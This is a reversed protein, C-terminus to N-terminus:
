WAGRAAEMEGAMRAVLEAVSPIDTIAGAGQGASWIDRWVRVGSADRRVVEMEAGRALRTEDLGAARISQRLFSANVGSIAPTYIIDDAGAAVIMDKQAEHAMAERSALFRTGCYALDAGIMRAAAIHRGDSIAGGLLVTGSFFRRLEAVFAFPNLTGGHGGAGACVAVLGDVGADAAKRAHRMTTVDHFITGGYGHVAEILEPAVGMSTIVLPVRCRLILALDAALRPNSRNVILNVGFPADQPGLAGAITELWTEFGSSTRQNLAPFTGVVGARCCALVLEPGSALLMPAVVVPLRLRGKLLEPLAM